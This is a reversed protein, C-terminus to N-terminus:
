VHADAGTADATSEVQEVRLRHALGDPFKWEIVTGVTMGLLASGVPALVSIKSQTPDAEEPYVLEVQRRMGTNEDIYVCRSNMMVTGPPIQDSPVVIARDLEDTLAHSAGLARLRQYDNVAILIDGADGSLHQM